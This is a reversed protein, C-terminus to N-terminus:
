SFEAWSDSKVPKPYGFDWYSKNKALASYMEYCVNCVQPYEDSVFVPLPAGQTAYGRPDINHMLRKCAGCKWPESLDVVRGFM